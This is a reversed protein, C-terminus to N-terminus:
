HVPPPEGESSPSAGGARVGSAILARLTALGTSLEDDTLGDLTTRKIEVEKPLLSAIVKLYQDPKEERVMRVVSEGHKEFDKALATILDEGLKHRSGLPRGQPNGSQGPKFPRGRQKPATSDASMSAEGVFSVTAGSANALAFRGMGPRQENM